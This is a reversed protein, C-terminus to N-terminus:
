FKRQALQTRSRVGLTRFAKRLHSEVGTFMDHAIRLENRADLRRRQRRLWEGNLLHARALEPRLRMRGLREIAERYLPKLRM